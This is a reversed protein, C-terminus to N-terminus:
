TNRFKLEPSLKTLIKQRQVQEKQVPLGLINPKAEKSEDPLLLRFAVVLCTKLFSIQNSFSKENEFFPAFFLKTVMLTSSCPTDKKPEPM